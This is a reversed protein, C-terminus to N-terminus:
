QSKRFLRHFGAHGSYRRFLTQKYYFLYTGDKLNAMAQVNGSPSFLQYDKRSVSKKPTGKVHLM